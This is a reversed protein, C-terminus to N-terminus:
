PATRRGGPKSDLSKERRQEEENEKEVSVVEGTRADVLIETVDTTGPTTVDFSWVLRGRERELESETVTGGRVRGLAIGQADARSLKAGQTTACATLVWASVFVTL